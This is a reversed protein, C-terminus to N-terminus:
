DDDGGGDDRSFLCCFRPTQVLYDITSWLKKTWIPVSQGHAERARLFNSPPQSAVVAFLWGGGLDGVTSNVGWCVAAIYSLQNKEWSLSPDLLSNYLMRSAKYHPLWIEPHKELNNKIGKQDTFMKSPALSLASNSVPTFPVENRNEPHLMKSPLSCAQSTYQLLASCLVTEWTGEKGADPRTGHIGRCPDEEWELPSCQTPSTKVLAVTRPQPQLETQVKSLMRFDQTWWSFSPVCRVEQYKSPLPM